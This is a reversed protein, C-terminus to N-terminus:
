EGRGSYLILLRILHINAFLALAYVASIVVYVMIGVPGGLVMAAQVSEALRTGKYSFVDISLAWLLVVDMVVISMSAKLYDDKSVDRLIRSIMARHMIPYFIVSSIIWGAIRADNSSRAMLDRLAPIMSLASGIEESVEASPPILIVVVACCFVYLWIGYRRWWIDSPDNSLYEKGM